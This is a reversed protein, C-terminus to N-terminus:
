KEIEEEFERIIDSISIIAEMPSCERISCQYRIKKIMKKIEDEMM